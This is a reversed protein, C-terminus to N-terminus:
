TSCISCSEAADSRCCDFRARTGQHPDLRGHRQHVRQQGRGTRRALSLRRPVRGTGNRRPPRIPRRNPRLQRREGLVQRDRLDTRRRSQCPLGPRRHGRLVALHQLRRGARHAAAAALQGAALPRVAPESAADADGGSRERREALSVDRRPLRGAHAAKRAQPLRRWRYLLLARSLDPMRLTLFPFVFMEDWFVHGRYAEGSLGRAPIGVDLDASYESVTQLLHFLHLRLSSRLTSTDPSSFTAASGSTTGPSCTGPSCRTSTRPATPRRGPRRPRNLSAGTGPPSCRWSRRSPAATTSSWTSRFTCPSGTTTSSRNRSSRPTRM